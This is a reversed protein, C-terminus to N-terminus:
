HREAPGGKEREVGGHVQLAIGEADRAERPDLRGLARGLPDRETMREREVGDGHTEHGAGLRGHDFDRRLDPSGALGPVLHLREDGDGGRRERKVVHALRRVLADLDALDGEELLRAALASPPAPPRGASSSENEPPPMPWASMSPCPRRMVYTRIETVSRQLRRQM